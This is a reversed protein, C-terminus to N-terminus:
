SAEKARLDAARDHLDGTKVVTLSANTSTAIARTTVYDEFAAAELEDAARQNAYVQVVPLLADAAPRAEDIVDGYIVCLAEALAERIQDHTM